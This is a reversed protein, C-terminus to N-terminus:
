KYLNKVQKIIQVMKIQLKTESDTGLIDLDLVETFSRLKQRMKLNIKQKDELDTELINLNLVQIFLRMRM